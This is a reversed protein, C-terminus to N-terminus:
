SQRKQIDTKSGTQVSQADDVVIAEGNIVHGGPPREKMAKRVERTKWWLYGWAALAVVVVVAFIVVSFMFGVVLLIVSAVLALFKGLLSPEGSQGYPNMM